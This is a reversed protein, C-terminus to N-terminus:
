SRKPPVVKGENIRRNEPFPPRPRPAEPKTQPAPQPTEKTPM